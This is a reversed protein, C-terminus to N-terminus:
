EDGKNFTFDTAGHRIAEKMVQARLYDQWGLYGFVTVFLGVIVFATPWDISNM